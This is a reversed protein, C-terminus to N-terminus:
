LQIQVGNLFTPENELVSSSFLVSSNKECIFGVLHVISNL